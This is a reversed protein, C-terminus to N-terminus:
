LLAALMLNLAIHRIRIWENSMPLSGLSRLTQNGENSKEMGTVANQNWTQATIIQLRLSSILETSRSQLSSLVSLCHEFATTM